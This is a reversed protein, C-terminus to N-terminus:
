DDAPAAATEHEIETGLLDLVMGLWEPHDEQRRITIITPRNRISRV